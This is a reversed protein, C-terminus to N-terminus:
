MEIQEILDDAGETGSKYLNLKVNAATPAWLRFTTADTTWVAGLDNGHYTYKAEFEASSFYDTKM